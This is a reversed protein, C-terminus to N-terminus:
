RAHVVAGSEPDGQWSLQDLTEEGHLRALLRVLLVHIYSKSADNVLVRSFM